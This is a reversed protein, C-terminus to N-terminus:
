NMCSMREHTGCERYGSQVSIADKALRIPMAPGDSAIKFLLLFYFHFM